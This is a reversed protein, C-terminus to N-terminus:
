KSLFQRTAIDGREENREMGEKQSNSVRSETQEEEVHTDVLTNREERGPGRPLPHRENDSNRAGGASTATKIFM